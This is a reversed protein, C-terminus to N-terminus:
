WGRVSIRRLGDDIRLYSLRLREVSTGLWPARGVHRDVRGIGRQVDKLDCFPRGDAASSLQSVWVACALNLIMAQLGDVLSWGYYASGWTRRGILTARVYRLFLESIQESDPSQTFPGVGEIRRFDVSCPLEATLFPTVGRGRRMRRSRVLQDLSTRIRGRNGEIRPDETRTFVAQRLLSSQRRSPEAVPQLILEDPLVGVLVEVLEIFRAERVNQLKADGLSQVVFALGDLRTAMSHTESQLWDDLLDIVADVESDAAADLGRALSAEPAPKNLEPLIDAFRRLDKRHDHLEAGVNQQVSRCLFNLGVRLSSEGPALNFPFVQCAVPKESFGHEAHIRCLGDERLFICSGDDRRKLYTQGRFGQTVEEGIKAAWGQSELKQIDRKRLQVTFDRCCDGCGHCSYKQWEMRPVLIPLAHAPILNM